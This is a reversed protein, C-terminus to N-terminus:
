PNDPPSGLVGFGWFGLVGIWNSFPQLLLYEADLGVVKLCTTGTPMHCQRKKLITSSLEQSRKTRTFLIQLFEEMYSSLLCLNIAGLLYLAVEMDMTNEMWKMATWKRFFTIYLFLLKLSSLLLQKLVHLQLPTVLLSFTKIFQINCLQNILRFSVQKM